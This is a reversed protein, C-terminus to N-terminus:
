AVAGTRPEPERDSALQGDRVSSSDLEFGDRAFARAELEDQRDRRL